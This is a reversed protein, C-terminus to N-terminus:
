SRAIAQVRKSRRLYVLWAAAHAVILAAWPLRDAPFVNSPLVSWYLGQVGVVASLVLAVSALAPGAPNSQWLAWGAAVSLAAVLGHAAIEAAGALGRMGISPLASAAEVAFGLPQLVALIGCLLLLWM